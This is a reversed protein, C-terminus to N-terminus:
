AGGRGKARLDEALAHLEKLQRLADRLGGDTNPDYLATSALLAALALVVSRWGPMGCLWGALGAAPAVLLPNLRSLLYRVVLLATV